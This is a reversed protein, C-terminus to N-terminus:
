SCIFEFMGYIVPHKRPPYGTVGKQSESRINEAKRKQIQIQM